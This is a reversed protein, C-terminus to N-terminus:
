CKVAIIFALIMLEGPCTAPHICMGGELVYDNTCFCGSVRDKVDTCNSFSRLFDCTIKRGSSQYDMGALCGLVFLNMVTSKNCYVYTGNNSIYNGLINIATCTYVGVDSSTVNFVTLTNETTTTNLSRSMIMYKSSNDLVNIMVGNFYWSIDPVPEGVAQCSFNALDNGGDSLDTIESIVIPGVIFNTCYLQYAYM